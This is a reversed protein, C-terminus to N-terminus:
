KVKVKLVIKWEEQGSNVEDINEVVLARDDEFMMCWSAEDHIDKIIVDM